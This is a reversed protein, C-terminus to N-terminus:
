ENSILKEYTKKDIPVAGITGLIDKITDMDLRSLKGNITIAYKPPDSQQTDNLDLHIKNLGNTDTYYKINPQTYQKEVNNSFNRDFNRLVNSQKAEKEFDKPKKNTSVSIQSIFSEGCEECRVFKTDIRQRNSHACIFSYSM